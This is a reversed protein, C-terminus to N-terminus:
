GLLMPAARRLPGQQTVGLSMNGIGLGQGTKGAYHSLSLAVAKHLRRPKPFTGFSTHSM